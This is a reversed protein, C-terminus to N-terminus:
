GSIQVVTGRELDVFVDYAVTGDARRIEVSAEDEVYSREDAVLVSDDDTEVSANEMELTFTATSGNDVEVVNSANGSANVDIEFSEVAEVKRIPEVAFEYDDMEDLHDQVTENSRVVDVAREREEATLPQTTRVTFRGDTQEIEVEKGETFDDVVTVERDGDSLTVGDGTVNFTAAPDADTVPAGVGLTTGGWVVGTALVVLGFLAVFRSRLDSTM